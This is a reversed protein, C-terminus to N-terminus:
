GAPAPPAIGTWREAQRWIKEWEARDEDTVAGGVRAFYLSSLGPLSALADAIAKAAQLSVALVAYGAHGAHLHARLHAGALHLRAKLQRDLSFGDQRYGLLVEPLCAFRSRLYARLLLDHDEARKVEPIRYRYARFWALRGMWTPHPLPLTAWPRRCIEAHSQRFPLVGRITGDSRFALARTALLDVEAHARLFRVQKDLRAPYAIDDADMRAFLPGRALDMAQNLRWALGRNRGDSVVRIRPDRIDNVISATADSSGDDLVLLEWDDYTQWIVSEVAVRITRSANFAPLAISVLPRDTM